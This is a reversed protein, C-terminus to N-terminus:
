AKGSVNPLGTFGQLLEEPDKRSAIPQLQQLAELARKPQFLLEGVAYRIGSCDLQTGDPLEYGQPPDDLPESPGKLGRGAPEGESLPLRADAYGRVVCSTLRIRAALESTSRQLFSNTCSAFARPQRGPYAFLPLLLEQQGVDLQLHIKGVKGQQQQQQRQQLQHQLVLEVQKDMFAGGVVFSRASRKLTYGDSVAAVTGGGSGLEVVLASSRGMAFAAAAAAPAFFAAPVQLDEFLAAAFAQRLELSCITPEVVLLPHEHAWVGLGGFPSCGFAEFASNDRFVEGSSSASEDGPGSSVDGAGIRGGCHGSCDAASAQQQKMCCCKCTMLEKKTGEVSDKLRQHRKPPRITRRRAEQESLHGEICTRVAAVFAERDLQSERQQKLESNAAAVPVKAAASTAVTSPAVAKFFIPAVETYPTPVGLNVPFLLDPQCCVCNCSSCGDPNWFFPGKSYFVSPPLGSDKRWQRAQLQPLKQHENNSTSSRSSGCCIRAGAVDPLAAASGGSQCCCCAGCFANSSSSGSAPLRLSRRGVFSSTEIRPHDEQAYGVRLSCSGLQVVLACVDEGGIPTKMSTVLTKTKGTAAPPYASPPAAGNM